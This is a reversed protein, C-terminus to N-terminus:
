SKHNPSGGAVVNLFRYDVYLNYAFVGYDCSFLVWVPLGKKKGEPPKTEAKETRVVKYNGEPDRNLAKDVGHEALQVAMALTLKGPHIRKQGREKLPGEEEQRTLTHLDFNIFGTEPTSEKPVVNDKFGLMLRGDAYVGNQKRGEVNNIASYSTEFPTPPHNYDFKRVLSDWNEVRLNIQALITSKDFISAVQEAVGNPVFPSFVRSFFKDFSGERGIQVADAREDAAHSPYVLDIAGRLDANPNAANLAFATLAMKVVRDTRTVAAQFAAQQAGTATAVTSM